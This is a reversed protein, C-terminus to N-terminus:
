AKPPSGNAPQDPGLAEAVSAATLSRQLIEDLAEAAVHSLRDVLGSPVQGPFRQHLITEISEALGEAKGLAQGEAKGEAKGLDFARDIPPRLIASDSTGM